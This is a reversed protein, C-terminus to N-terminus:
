PQVPWEITAPWGAQQEIRGLDRRFVKWKTLTALESPSADDTDVADQLPAIAATALQMLTTKKDLAVKVLFEKSPPPPTVWAPLGDDGGARVKGEPSTDSKFEEFVEDPVEVCDDPWNGNEVYVDRLTNDLFCNKSSSYSYITMM